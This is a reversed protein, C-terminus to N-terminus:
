DAVPECILEAVDIVLDADDRSPDGPARVEWV